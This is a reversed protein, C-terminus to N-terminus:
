PSLTSELWLQIVVSDEHAASNAPWGPTLRRKIAARVEEPAAVWPPASQGIKLAPSDSVRLIKEFEQWESKVYGETGVAKTWLRHFLSTNTENM